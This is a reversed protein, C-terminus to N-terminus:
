SWVPVELIEKVQKLTDDLYVIQMAPTPPQENTLNSM